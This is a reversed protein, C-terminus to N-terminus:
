GLDWTIAALTTWSAGTPGAHFWAAAPHCAVVGFKSVINEHQTEIEPNQYKPKKLVRRNQNVRKM